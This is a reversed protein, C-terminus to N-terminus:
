RSDIWHRLSTFQWIGSLKFKHSSESHLWKTEILVSYKIINVGDLQDIPWPTGLFYFTQIKSKVNFFKLKNEVKTARELFCVKCCFKKSPLIKWWWWKCLRLLNKGKPKSFKVQKRKQQKKLVLGSVLNKLIASNKMVMMQMGSSM